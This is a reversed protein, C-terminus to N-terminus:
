THTWSLCNLQTNVKDIYLAGIQFNSNSLADKEIWYGGLWDLRGIKFGSYKQHFSIKFDTFIEAFWMKVHM